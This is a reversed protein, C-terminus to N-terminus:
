SKMEWKVAILACEEEQELVERTYNAMLHNAFVYVLDTGCPKEFRASGDYPDHGMFVAGDGRQITYIQM